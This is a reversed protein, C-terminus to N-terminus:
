VAEKCYVELEINREDVNRVFNVTFIRDGFKLRHRPTLCDCYRMSVVHSVEAQQQEAVYLQKGNAPNISAWVKLVTLWEEITEGYANATGPEAKAQIEIKHRHKGIQMTKSITVALLGTAGPPKRQGGNQSVNILGPRTLM